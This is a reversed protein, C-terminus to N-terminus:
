SYAVWSMTWKDYPPDNPDNQIPGCSALIHSGDNSYMNSYDHTLNNMAYYSGNHTVGVGHFTVSGFNALSTPVNNISPRETIAEASGSDAAPGYCQYSNMGDSLRDVFMCNGNKVQVYMHDGCNVSFVDNEYKNNPDGYNEVWAKYVHSWGYNAIYVAQAATGTQVLNNNNWGGLGVWASMYGNDNTNNAICPVTYDMDIETYSQFPAGDAINGDWIKFHQDSPNQLHPTTVRSSATRDCIREKAGRVIAAWRDFPENASRTPLGYRALEQPSYTARDKVSQAPPQECSAARIVTGPALPGPKAAAHASTQFISLLGLALASGMLISRALRVILSTLTGNIM